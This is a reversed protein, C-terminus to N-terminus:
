AAAVPISFKIGDLEIARHGGTSDIKLTLGAFKMAKKTGDFIESGLELELGNSFRLYVGGSPSLDMDQLSIKLTNPARFPKVNSELSPSNEKTEHSHSLEPIQATAREDSPLEAQDSPLEAQDSPLAAKDSSLAVQDYSLTEVDSAMALESTEFALEELATSDRDLIEEQDLALAVQSSNDLNDDELLSLTEMRDLENKDESLHQFGLQEGVEADLKKEIEDVDADTAEIGGLHDLGSLDDKKVATAVDM